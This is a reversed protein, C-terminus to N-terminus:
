SGSVYRPLEHVRSLHQRLGRRHAVQLLNVDYGANAEVIVPGRDTIAVDWGLTIAEPLALHAQKVIRLLESWYPLVLGAIDRNTDPHREIEYIDPWDRSRSTVAPGLMGNDLDIPSVINGRRGEAFNDVLNAGVPIKLVAIIAVVCGSDRVTVVRVTALAHPSVAARLETHPTMVPQVIWAGGVAARRACHEFLDGATGRDNAFLWADGHKVALFAGDGHSGAVPKFFLQQHVGAVSEVFTAKDLPPRREEASTAADEAAIVGLIPVVPLGAASLRDHFRVKDTALRRAEPPNIDRIIPNSESDLIYERWKGAPVRYLTFLSYYRPGIGHLLRARVIQLLAIVTNTGGARVAIEVASRYDRVADM